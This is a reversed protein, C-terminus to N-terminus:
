SVYQAHPQNSLSSQLSQEATLKRQPLEWAIAGEPLGLYYRWLSTLASYSFILDPSGFKGDVEWSLPYLSPINSDGFDSFRSSLPSFRLPLKSSQSYINVQVQIPTEPGFHDTVQTVAPMSGPSNLTGSITSRSYWPQRAQTCTERFM